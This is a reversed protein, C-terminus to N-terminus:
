APRSDPRCVKSRSEPKLQVSSADPRPVWSLEDCIHFISILKGKQWVTRQKSVFPAIPCLIHPLAFDFRATRIVVAARGRETVPASGVPSTADYPASQERPVRAAM